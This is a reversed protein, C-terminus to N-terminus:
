LPLTMGLAVVKDACSDRGDPPACSAFTPQRRNPDFGVFMFGLTLDITGSRLWGLVPVDALPELAFRLQVEIYHSDFAFLKPDSTYFQDVDPDYAPTNGSPLKAFSAHGQTHFRYALRADVHDTLDQYVRAEFTNADLDWSDRYYRYIGQLTTGTSPFLQALRGFLTYRQRTSPLKEAVAGGGVNVARYPNSQFGDLAAVEFGATAVATPSLLQSVSLSLYDTDLPCDRETQPQDSNCAPVSRHEILSRPRNYVQDFTHAYALTWTTNREFLDVSLSGGITDSDYDSERSRLYSAGVRWNGIAQVVHAGVENRYETLAKDAMRDGHEAISASTIADLVYDAAVTTGTQPIAATVQVRPQVVRTSTEKYYFGHVDVEQREQGRASGAALAAALVGAGCLRRTWRVPAVATFGTTAHNRKCRESATLQM